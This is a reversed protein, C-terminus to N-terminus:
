EEKKKAKPKPLLRDALRDLVEDSTKKKETATYYRLMTEPTVDFAAAARKPHIDEEAARTFAARRFDHSLAPKDALLVDELPQRTWVVAELAFDLDSRVVGKGTELAAKRHAGQAALWAEGSPTRMVLSLPGPGSVAWLEDGADADLLERAKAASLGPIVEADSEARALADLLPEVASDAALKGARELVKGTVVDAAGPRKDLLAIVLEAAPWLRQRNVLNRNGTALDNVQEDAMKCYGALDLPAVLIVFNIPSKMRVLLVEARGFRALAEQKAAAVEEASPLQLQLM